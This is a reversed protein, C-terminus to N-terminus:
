GRQAASHGRGAATAERQTPSTWVAFPSVNCSARIDSNRSMKATAQLLVQVQFIFDFRRKQGARTIIGTHVSLQDLELDCQNM